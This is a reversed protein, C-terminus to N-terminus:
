GEVVLRYYSYKGTPDERHIEILDGPKAGLVKVQPDSELIKSFKDFNINYKKCVKKAESESLLEHKPTLNPIKVL